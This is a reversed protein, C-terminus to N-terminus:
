RPWGYHWHAHQDSSRCALCPGPSHLACCPHAPAGEDDMLWSPRGCHRCPGFPPRVDFPRGPRDHGESNLITGHPLEALTFAAFRTGDGNDGLAWRGGTNIYERLLWVNILAWPRLRDSGPEAEFGYVLYDGFGSRIKALETTARSARDLRITFDAAFRPRYHCRRARLMVRGDNELRGIQLDTNRRADDEWSAIAVRIVGLAIEAGHARFRAGFAFDEGFETM